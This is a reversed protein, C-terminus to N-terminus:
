KSVLVGPARTAHGSQEKRPRQTVWAKIEQGSFTQAIHSCTGCLPLEGLRGWQFSVNTFVLPVKGGNLKRITMVKASLLM